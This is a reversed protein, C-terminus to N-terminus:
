ENGAEKKIYEEAKRETPFIIIKNNSKIYDGIKTDYVVYGDEEFPDGIQIRYRKQFM